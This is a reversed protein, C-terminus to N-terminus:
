TRRRRGASLGALALLAIAGPAPVFQHSFAYQGLVSFAAQEAVSWGDDGYTIFQIPDPAYETFDVDYLNTTGNQAATVDGWAFGASTQDDDWALLATVLQTNNGMDYWDVDSGTDGSAFWNTDSGTTASIGIFQDPVSGSPTNIPVGGFLGIFSMGSDTSALLFSLRGETEIGDNQLVQALIDLESMTFSTDSGGLIGGIQGAELNFSGDVTDISVYDGLALQSLALSTVLITFGITKHM